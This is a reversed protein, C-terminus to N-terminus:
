FDNTTDLFDQFGQSYELGGEVCDERIEDMNTDNAPNHFLGEDVEYFGLSEMLDYLDDPTDDQLTHNSEWHGADVVAVCIGDEMSFRDYAFLYM